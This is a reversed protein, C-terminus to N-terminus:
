VLDKLLDKNIEYMTPSKKVKYVYGAENLKGLISNVKTRKYKGDFLYVFDRNSVGTHLVDFLKDQGLIFLFEKEIEAIGLNDIINRLQEVDNKLKTLKENMRSQARLIIKLIIGVFPTLDGKNRPHSTIAFAEEYEKKNQLVSESISLGTLFDLKRSLYSSLLFRGMRGNGDYFPHVYEFFYHTIIAKVILPCEPNNMFVILKTLDEGISLESSNGQHVYSNSDGVYILDKRFLEGDPKDKEPMEDLFLKDYIVRFKPLSDIIEFENNVISRYMEVIGSFRKDKSPSSYAESIEKRTSKVGEVDNTSQIEDIIQLYFLKNMLLSSLPFNTLNSSNKYIQEIMVLHEPLSLYFLTYRDSLRRQERKSFPRISLNTRLTSPSYFRNNYESEYNEFDSYSIIELRKYM